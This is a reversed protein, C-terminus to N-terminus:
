SRDIKRDVLELIEEELRRASRAMREAKELTERRRPDDPLGRANIKVNLHAGLVGCRIALAGVGADSASGPPGERAMAKVVEMAALGAEMVRFPVEMAARTAQRVATDRREKEEGTARPLRLAAMVAQFARADEDVLGLLEQQLRIAKEAWGSFEEWRAEGGPRHASLNAVMAGLAAGLAAAYAAVSGGGPAPSESATQGAFAELSM